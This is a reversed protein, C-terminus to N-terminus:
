ESPPVVGSVTDIQEYANEGGSYEYIGYTGAALSGTDTMDAPGSKGDYDLIWDKAQWHDQHGPEQRWGSLDIGTYLSVFGQDLAAVETAPPNSSPLEQIRINRFHM